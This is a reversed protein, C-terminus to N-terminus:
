NVVTELSGTLYLATMVIASMVLSELMKHLCKNGLGDMMENFNAEDQSVGDESFKMRKGESSGKPDLHLKIRALVKVRM